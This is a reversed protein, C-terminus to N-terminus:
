PKHWLQPYLDGKQDAQVVAIFAPIQLKPLSM